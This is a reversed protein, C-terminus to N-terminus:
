KPQWGKKGAGVDDQEIEPNPQSLRKSEYNTYFDYQYILHPISPQFRQPVADLWEKLFECNERITSLLM